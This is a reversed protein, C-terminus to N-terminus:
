EEKIELTGDEIADEVIKTVRELMKRDGFCLQKTKAMEELEEKVEFAYGDLIMKNYLAHRVNYTNLRPM